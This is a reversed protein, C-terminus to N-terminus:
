TTARCASPSSRATAAPWSSRARACTARPRTSCSTTTRTASASPRRRSTSPSTSSSSRRRRPPARRPGQGPDAPARPRRLDVERPLADHAPRGRRAALRHDPRQGRADRGLVRDGPRRTRRRHRHHRPGPRPGRPPVDERDDPASPRWRGSRSATSRTRRAREVSTRLCTFSPTDRLTFASAETTRLRQVLDLFAGVDDTDFAVVFEQDDLGFSYTTHNDVTPTSAGSASTSRCSAGASTATSRTGRARRSSRTCSSTSAASRARASASTTPTSRAVQAHGPVLAPQECWKMLGSQQSCSTSSTSATSTRPRPSCCCTPTAARASSRSRSCCTTPPSTRAPPSSSASTPAGARDADLRRWAPDVKLFTYKVFHREAHPSMRQLIRRPQGCEPGACRHLLIRSIRIARTDGYEHVYGPPTVRWM